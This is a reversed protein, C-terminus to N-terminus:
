IERRRDRELWLRVAAAVLFVLGIGSFMLSAVLLLAAPLTRRSELALLVGLGCAVSGVFSIQFAWLINEWGAGLVVLLAVAAMGVVDGARRRVLEFLLFSTLGHLMVLVAM